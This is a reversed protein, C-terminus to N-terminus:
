QHDAKSNVMAKIEETVMENDGGGITGGGVMDAGPGKMFPSKKQM